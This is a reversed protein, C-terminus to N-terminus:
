SSVLLTYEEHFRSTYIKIINQPNRLSQLNKQIVPIAIIGTLISATTFGMIAGYPGLCLIVFLAM